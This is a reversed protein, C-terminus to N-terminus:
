CWARTPRLCARPRRRRRRSLRHQRRRLRPSVCGRGARRRGAGVAMWGRRGGSTLGDDRVMAAEEKAYLSAVRGYERAVRFGGDGRQCAANGAPDAAPPRGTGSSCARTSSRSCVGCRVAGLCRRRLAARIAAEDVGTSWGFAPSCRMAWGNRADLAAARRDVAAAGPPRDRRHLGRDGLREEVARRGRDLARRLRVRAM